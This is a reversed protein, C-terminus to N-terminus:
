WARDRRWAVLFLKLGELRFGLGRFGVGRFGLFLVGQARLGLGLTGPAQLLETFLHWVTSSRKLM